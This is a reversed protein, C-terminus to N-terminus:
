LHQLHFDTKSMRTEMVSEINNLDSSKAPWCLHHMEGEHEEFWSLLGLHTFQPVTTKSFQITTQCYRRSCVICRTVWGTWTSVELLEAMFSLLPDLHIGWVIVFGRGHKVTPVSGLMGCQLSGQTNELRLSKRILFCRSSSNMQGCWANGTAQHGRKTTTVGDNLCILVVQLLWLNLLQLGVTSIPITFNKLFGPDELRINVEETRDGTSCCNQLKKEFCDKEIYLSRQWHENEGVTARRYLQREM